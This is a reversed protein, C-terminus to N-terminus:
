DDDEIPPVTEYVFASHKQIRNLISKLQTGNEKRTM